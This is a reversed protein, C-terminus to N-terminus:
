SAARRRVSVYGADPADLWGADSVDAIFAGDADVLVGMWKYVGPALVDFTVTISLQDYLGNGNLDEAKDGGAVLALPEGEFQRATYAATTYANQVSDVIPPMYDDVGLHEIYLFDLVYPGDVGAARLTKGDFSFTLTHVGSALPGSSLTSYADGVLRTGVADALSGIINYEGSTTITVTVDVQLADYYGNGNTDVPTEGGVGLIAATKTVVSASTKALRLTGDKSSQASLKLRGDVSPAEFQAAFYGDGATADGHTADDYFVLPVVTDTPLTVVGTITHGTQLIGQNGVGARVTVTQGPAYTSKDTLLVLEVPSDISIQASFFSQTEASIHLQWVGDAPADITYQHQWYRDDATSSFTSTIVTYTVQPNSAPTEATVLQNAPDILTVSLPTTAFVDVVMTTVAAVPASYVQRQAPSLEGYFAALPQLAEETEVSAPAAAQAEGADPPPFDPDLLAIAYDFM